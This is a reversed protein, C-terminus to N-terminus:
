MHMLIYIFKSLGNPTHTHTLSHIYIIQTDTHTDKPSVKHTPYAILTKMGRFFGIRGREAAKIISM